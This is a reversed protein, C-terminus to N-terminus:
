SNMPLRIQFVSVAKQLEVEDYREIDPIKGKGIKIAPRKLQPMAGSYPQNLNMGVYLYGVRDIQEDTMPTYKHLLELIMDLNESNDVRKVIRDRDPSALAEQITGQFEEHTDKYVLTYKPETYRFISELDVGAGLMEVVLANYKSAPFMRAIDKCKFQDSTDGRLLKHLLITNYPIYFGKYASLGSVVQEFNKPTVQIYHNKELAKTEAYTGKKSRLFVSVTDDVLPLLDADNTIVDIPCGPYKEKARKICAFILDDAEYNPYAYVSVGAMKLINECDQSADFMAEPMKERNGKYEKGSGIKMEPFKEQFYAKRAAVPRDLCVATPFSGKGSWRYLNKIAGNHITTDKEIIEDDVVVRASLRHPSHFLSHLQHNWDVIVVRTEM